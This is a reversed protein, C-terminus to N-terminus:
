MSFEWGLWWWWWCCCWPRLYEGNDRENEDCTCNLYYHDPGEYFLGRRMENWGIYIYLWWIRFKIMILCLQTHTENHSSNAWSLKDLPGAMLSLMPLCSLEDMAPPSRLRCARDMLTLMARGIRDGTEPCPWGDAAQARWPWRKWMAPAAWTPSWFWTSTHIATSPSDWGEVRKVNWGICMHVMLILGLFHFQDFYLKLGM